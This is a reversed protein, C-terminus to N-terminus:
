KQIETKSSFKSIHYKHNLDHTKYVFHQQTTMLRLTQITGQNCTHILSRDVKVKLNNCTCYQHLNNYIAEYIKYKMEAHIIM